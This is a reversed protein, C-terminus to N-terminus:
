SIGISDMVYHCQDSGFHDSGSHDQILLRLIDSEFSGTPRRPKRFRAAAPPAPSAAVAGIARAWCAARFGAVPVATSTVRLTRGPESKMTSTNLVSPMSYIAALGPELKRPRCSDKM